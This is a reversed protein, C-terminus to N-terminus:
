PARWGSSCTTAALFTGSALLARRACTKRQAASFSIQLILRYRRAAPLGSSKRQLVLKREKFCRWLIGALFRQLYRQYLRAGQRTSHKRITSSRVLQQYLREDDPTASLRKWSAQRRRPM